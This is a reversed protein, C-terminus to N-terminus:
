RCTAEEQLATYSKQVFAHVLAKRYEKSGRMNDALEIAFLAEEIQKDDYSVPFVVLEARKPRAGIAIRYNTATKAISFTLVSLDTASKRMCLFKTLLPEKRIRIHTLIDREYPQKSYDGLKIEGQHYLVVSTDLVMFATLIDSFGFRSYLSGGITATNRFQVGVIDKISDQILTGFAKLLIPSTGMQRLTCMAGIEIYDEQEKIEDLHLAQLDIAMPVVCDQMKLWQMGGLIQHNRNKMLLTYAEDLSSAKVYQQMHLM